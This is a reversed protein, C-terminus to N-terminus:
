GTVRMRYVPQWGYGCCRDGHARKGFQGLVDEQEIGEGLFGGAPAIADDALQGPEGLQFVGTAPGAVDRRLLQPVAAAPFQSALVGLDVVSQGRAPTGRSRAVPLRAARPV